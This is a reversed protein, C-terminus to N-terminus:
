NTARYEELLARAQDYLEPSIHANRALAAAVQDSIKRLEAAWEPDPDVMSIGTNVLTLLADSEKQWAAADLERFASNLIAQVARQDAPAIKQFAKRDIALM